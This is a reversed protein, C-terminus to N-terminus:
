LSSIVEESHTSGVCMVSVRAWAVQLQSKAVHLEESARALLSSEAACRSAGRSSCPEVFVGSAPCMEHLALTAFATREVAKKVRTDDVDTNSFIPDCRYGDGMSRRLLEGPHRSVMSRRALMTEVVQGPADGHEPDLWLPEEGSFQDVDCEDPAAESLDSVESDRENRSAGEGLVESLENSWERSTRTSETHADSNGHMDMVEAKEQLSIPVSFGLLSMSPVATVDHDSQVLAQPEVHGGHDEGCDSPVAALHVDCANFQGTEATRLAEDTASGETLSPSLGDPDANLWERPAEGIPKWSASGERLVPLVDVPRTNRAVFSRPSTADPLRSTISSPRSSRETDLMEVEMGQILERVQRNVQQIMTCRKAIQSNTLTLHALQSEFLKTCLDKRCVGAHQDHEILKLTVASDVVGRMRIEMICQLLSEVRDECAKEYAELAELQAVQFHGETLTQELTASLDLGERELSMCKQLELHPAEPEMV